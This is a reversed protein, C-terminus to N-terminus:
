MSAKWFFIPLQNPLFFSNAASARRYACILSQPFTLGYPSRRIIFLAKSADEPAVIILMKGENAVQFIDLVPPVCSLHTGPHRM